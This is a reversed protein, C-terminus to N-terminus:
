LEAMFEDDGYLVLVPGVLWDVWDGHADRLQGTGRAQLAREWLLTAVLNFPLQYPPADPQHRYDLKGHENCFAVCRRHDAGIADFGPVLELDGGVADRMLQLTPPENLVELLKGYPEDPLFLLARGNM